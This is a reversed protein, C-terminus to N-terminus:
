EGVFGCQDCDVRSEVSVLSTSLVVTFATIILGGFLSLLWPTFLVNFKILSERWSFWISFIPKCDIWEIPM